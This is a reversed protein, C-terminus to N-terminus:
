KKKEEKKVVSAKSGKKKGKEIEQVLYKIVLEVATTADDNMPIPYDVLDPNANSDLLGIVKIGRSKAEKAAIKDKKADFIVVVEPIGGLDALGGFFRQLKAIERDILLREKKTYGAFEGAERSKKLKNLRGIRTKIQEWNTITGGLWRETVYGAGIRMAEEKVMERSQRKTGVLVIKKNESAMKSLFKGAKEVEEITKELDFIHVGGKKGYLFKEMKPNWRKAVHGFHAGAEFLIEPTIKVIKSKKTEKVKTEVKKTM